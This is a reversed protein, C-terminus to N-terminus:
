DEMEIPHKDDSRESATDLLNPNRLHIKRADYLSSGSCM